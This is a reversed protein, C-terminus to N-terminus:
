SHKFLPKVNVRLGPALPGGSVVTVRPGASAPMDGATRPDAQGSAVVSAGLKLFLSFVAFFVLTETTISVDFRRSRAFNM